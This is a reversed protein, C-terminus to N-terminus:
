TYRRATPGATWCKASFGQGAAANTQNQRRAVFAL